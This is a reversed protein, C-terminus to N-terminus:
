RWAASPRVPRRHLCARAGRRDAAEVCGAATCHVGRYKGAADLLYIEINPNVAMLKSFEAKVEAVFDADSSLKAFRETALNSALPQNLAQTLMLDYHRYTREQLFLALGGNACVLLAILVFFKLHLSKM